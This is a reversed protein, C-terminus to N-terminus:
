HPRRAEALKSGVLQAVVIALYFQGFVGELMAVGRALPVVPTVDGYGVTTITSLSFYLFMAEREHWRPFEAHPVGQVFYAEPVLLAIAAYINAFAMAALLYGCLTGLMDDLSVARREFLHRLLMAVAIALFLAMGVHVVLEIRERHAADALRLFWLAALAVLGALLSILRYSARDFVTVFVLVMIMSLVAERLYPYEAETMGLMVAGLLVVLLLLNAHDRLRGAIM